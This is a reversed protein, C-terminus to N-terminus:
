VMAIVMLLIVMTFWSGAFPSASNNWPQHASRECIFGEKDSCRRVQFYASFYVQACDTDATLSSPEKAWNVLSTDILQNGGWTWYGENGSDTLQTWFGVFPDATLGRLQENIFQQEEKTDLIFLQPIQNGSPALSRCFSQAESFTMQVDISSFNGFLYCDYGAGSDASRSVWQGGKRPCGQVNDLECLPSAFWATCSLDNFTGDAHITGCDEDGKYDNPESNWAITNPDLPTGDSWVFKGENDRDNLATWMSMENSPDMMQEQLWVKLDLNKVNILDGNFSQCMAKADSWTKKPDSFFQYCKQGARIWSGCGNNLTTDAYAQPKKCVFNQNVSCSRDSFKGNPRVVACSEMNAVNDPEQVWQFYAQNFTASNFWQWKGTLYQLGTWYLIPGNVNNSLAPLVSVFDRDNPDDITLLHSGTALSVCRAKADNWSLLQSLDSTNSIFYCDTSTPVWGDQCKGGAATIEINCLYGQKSACDVDAMNTMANLGGCANMGDNAPSKNWQVINPKPQTFKGWKWIGNGPAKPGGFPPRDNLNTWYAGSPYTNFKGKVWTLEDQTDFWIPSSDYKNCESITQDYTVWKDAIFLYCNTGYQDWGIDCGLPQPTQGWVYDVISYTFILRFLFSKMDM